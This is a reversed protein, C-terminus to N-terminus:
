GKPYEALIIEMGESGAAEKLVRAVVERDMANHITRVFRGYGGLIGSLVGSPIPQGGTTMARGNHLIVVKLPLKRSRCEPLGIHGAAVFSFDGTIAWAEERGAALAGIALPLSGGYYTCADIADYPPFAYLSSVGTDGAVFARETRLTRFVDFFPEYERVTGQWAMPLASPDVRLEPRPIERWDKQALKALLLQNQYRAMPPCLVHRYPDRLYHGDFAPIQLPTVSVPSELTEVDLFLAVPLGLAESWLFADLTEEYIDKPDPAKFPIGMGKLFPTLDFISDSHRGLPDHTVVVVFGATIGATMADIVSNAAKALGHSKMVTVSRTGTLAAGHAISFAPEENFSAPHGRGTMQNFYSFIEWGGTAPVSTAVGVGADKLAEAVAESASATTTGGASPFRTTHFGPPLPIGAIAAGATALGTLRLFDRRSPDPTHKV